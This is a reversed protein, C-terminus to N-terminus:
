KPCDLEKENKWDWCAKNAGMGVTEYKGDKLAKIIVDSDMQHSFMEQPTKPFSPNEGIGFMLGSNYVSSKMFIVFVDWREIGVVRVIKAKAIQKKHLEATINEKSCQAIFEEAVKALSDTLKGENIIIERFTKM